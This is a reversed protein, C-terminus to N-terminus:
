RGVGRTEGLRAEAAECWQVMWEYLGIGYELALRPGCASIDPDPDADWEDRIASLKALTTERDRRLAEISGRTDDPEGTVADAFFLRLLGEDRLEMGAAQEHLWRRLEERGAETLRYVVKPRGGTPQGEGAILGEAHLRRLEPYIQGYSAAWFFRTSYDVTQKMQYGSQPCQALLGLIVHRVGSM